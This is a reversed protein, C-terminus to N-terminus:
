SGYWCSHTARCGSESKGLALLAELGMLLADYEAVNNTARGLYRSIEKVVAAHEDLNAAGGGAEGPNGRAAGDIMLLWEAEAQMTM